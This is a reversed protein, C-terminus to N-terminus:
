LVTMAEAARIDAPLAEVVGGCPTAVAVPGEGRHRTYLVVLSAALGEPVTDGILIASPGSVDRPAFAAGPALAELATNDGEDRGIILFSAPGLRLMRGHHILSANLPTM